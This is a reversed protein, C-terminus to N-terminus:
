SLINNEVVSNAHADSAIRVLEQATKHFTNNAVRTNKLGGGNEFSGYYFGWRTGVVINNIITNDSSPNSDTYSENAVAIGQGPFGDRYYRTNGTSYILNADVTVFRANDLFVGQSFNDFLENGYVTANNTLNVIIAEGDNNYVRNGRFTAGNTRTVVLTGAWGGSTAHATNELVNNYAVNNEITTDVNGGM